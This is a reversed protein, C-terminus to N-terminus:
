YPRQTVWTLSSVSNRKYWFSQGPQLVMTSVQVDGNGDVFVWKDHLSPESPFDVLFFTQYASGDWISITDASDPEEGGRAGAALNLGFQPSNIAVGSSYPYSVLSFGVNLVNTVSPAGVVDGVMVFQNTAVNRKVFFGVGPPLEINAIVAEGQPNIEVWKGDFEPAEGGTDALFFSKYSSGTWVLINDAGDFDFGGSLQNGVVTNIDQSTNLFPNSVQTFANTVSVRQYGVINVSYVPGQAYACTAATLAAFVAILKKMSPELM